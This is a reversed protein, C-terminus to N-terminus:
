PGEVFLFLLQTQKDFLRKLKGATVEPL